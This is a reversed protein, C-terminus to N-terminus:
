SDYEGGTLFADREPRREKVKHERLIPQGGHMFDQLGVPMIDSM